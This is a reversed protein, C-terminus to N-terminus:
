DSIARGHTKCWREITVQCVCPGTQQKKPCRNDYCCTASPKEM